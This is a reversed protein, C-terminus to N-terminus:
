LSNARAVQSYWHGSNKIIRKQTKYDVYVMGFRQDYGYAWEFNDMLSWQYYGKLPAGDEIAKQCAELHARLYEIRETDYVVGDAEPEHSYAAGNETIYLAPVRYENTLRMLLDYLAQPYVEWGIDTRPNGSDHYSEGFFGNGAGILHRTYFNVGLFDIPRSIVALDEDSAECMHEGFFDVMDQPYCGKFLPDAFWRNNFGDVRYAAERDAASDSAPYAPTFNLVIGHQGDPVNRRLAELATGHSLLVHHAVQIAAKLDHKGPAHQGLFNSLFSICWPENHTAFMKVRDGLRASVTDAYQTFAQVIDRNEWGGKEQLAQPLDWHYLTVMPQINHRLLTDVLRDYFDLGRPEVPGTGQPFIRSWAISFRYTQLGMDAMMAIDEPYRHYHDCAVDGNDNNAVKGPVDCFVDWITAGRGDAMTAGEIQYSSTAAGWLFGQPFSM